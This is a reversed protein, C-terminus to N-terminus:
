LPSVLAEIYSSMLENLSSFMKAAELHNNKNRMSDSMEAVPVINSSRYSFPIFRAQDVLEAKYPPKLVFGGERVEVPYVNKALAPLRFAGLHGIPRGGQSVLGMSDIFVEQGGNPPRQIPNGTPSSVKFGDTSVLEGEQNFRFRGNYTYLKDGLPTTLEFFYGGDISVDTAVPSPLVPGPTLDFVCTLSPVWMDPSESPDTGQAIFFPKSKCAGPKLSASLNAAHVMQVEECHHMYMAAQYDSLLM